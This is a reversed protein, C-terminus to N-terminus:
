QVKDLEAVLATNKLYPSELTFKDIRRLKLWPGVAIEEVTKSSWSEWNDHPASILRGTLVSPASSALWLILRVAKEMGNDGIRTANRAEELAREGARKGAKLIESQMATNLSGPAIANVQINYTAVEDAVTETLRVVAAKSAAYASFFPRSSTAGGGSLTIIRGSRQRIMYPLVNKLVLFTGLLNIQITQLWDREDSEVFPGIAGQIAANSVLVDIRGWERAVDSLFRRVEGSRTVDCREAFCRAELGQIQKTTERLAKSDRSCIAVSAGERAFALAVSQGLGRAAGTVVVNKGKLKM